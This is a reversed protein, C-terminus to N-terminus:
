VKNMEVLKKALFEYLDIDDKLADERTYYYRIDPAVGVREVVQGVRKETRFWKAYPTSFGVEGPLKDGVAKSFFRRLESYHAVLGGGGGSAEATGVVLSRNEDMQLATYAEAASFTKADMLTIVPGSYAPKREMSEAEFYLSGIPKTFREKASIASRLAGRVSDILKKLRTDADSTDFDRFLTSTLSTARVSFPQEKVKKSSVLEALVKVLAMSGGSNGRLDVILGNKPMRPLIRTLESEYRYHDSLPVKFSSVQLRGIPGQKTQIEEAGLVNKTFSFVQINTRSQKNSQPLKVLSAHGTSGRLSFSDSSNSVQADTSQKLISFLRFDSIEEYLWPLRAEMKYGREDRFGITISEQLPFNISTTDRYTLQAIGDQQKAGKNAGYGRRGLTNIAQHIDMGNYSVIESGLSLKVSAPLIDKVIDAVIYKPVRSASGKGEYIERVFFGLWAFATSLPRPAAYQAHRDNMMQFVRIMDMHFEFNTMRERTKRAVKKFESVINLGLVKRHMFIHPNVRSYVRIVTLIIQRKEQPSLPSANTRSIIQSLNRSTTIENFDEALGGINICIHQDPICLDPTTPDYDDCDSSYSCAGVLTICLLGFVAKFIVMNFVRVLHTAILYQFQSHEQAGKYQIM